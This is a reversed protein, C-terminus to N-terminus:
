RSLINRLVQLYIRSRRPKIKRDFVVLPESYIRDATWGYMDSATKIPIRFRRPIYRYGQEAEHQWERYLRIQGRVFAEFEERCRCATARDLGPLGSGALPLYRRGLRADEDLDRIFNIYQMARGQIRAYPYSAEPLALLKAMFLGIVEASGYTYVLTDDLEDYTSKVLDLQMSYLFAEVWSVDLDRRRVLDVFSDIIRDGSPTGAIANRYASCFGHFGDADQPVSDVYDDAVRVFGYLVYVDNRVADPFFVSSNYYTTSGRRFTQTHVDTSSAM